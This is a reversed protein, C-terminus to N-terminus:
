SGPTLHTQLVLHSWATVQKSSAFTMHFACLNQIVLYSASPQLFRCKQEGHTGTACFPLLFTESLIDLVRCPFSFVLDEMYYHVRIGCLVKFLCFHLSAQSFLSTEYENHLPSEETHSMLHQSCSAQAPPISSM